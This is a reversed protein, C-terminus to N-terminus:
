YIISITNTHLNAHMPMCAHTAVNCPSADTKHRQLVVLCVAEIQRERRYKEQRLFYREKLKHLGQQERDRASERRGKKRMEGLGLM